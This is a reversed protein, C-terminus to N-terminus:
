RKASDLPEVYTAPFMGTKGDICGTWWNENFKDTVRIIDGRKFSIEESDQASFDFM